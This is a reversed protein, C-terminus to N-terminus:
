IKEKTKWYRNVLAFALISAALGVFFGGLVDTPYHVGLYLRSFTILVALIMAAIGFKKPLMRWYIFASAFSACTHGSPFSYDSLKEVLPIIAACADYPRPRAFLNKLCVNTMLAGIGVALLATFGVRRTQRPIMLVLALAVWFWGVEGLFTIGRWFGHFAENRIYEQIFLLVSTDISQIM